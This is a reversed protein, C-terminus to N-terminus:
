AAIQHRQRAISGAFHRIVILADETQNPKGSIVNAATAQVAGAGTRNTEGRGKEHRFKRLDVFFHEVRDGLDRIDDDTVELCREFFPDTHHADTCGGHDEAVLVGRAIEASGLPGHNRKRDVPVGEVHPDTELLVLFDLTEKIAVREFQGVL